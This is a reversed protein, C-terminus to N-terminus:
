GYARYDAAGFRLRLGRSLSDAGLTFEKFYWGIGGDVDVFQQWISPIQIAVAESGPAADFWRDNMGHNEPDMRALGLL